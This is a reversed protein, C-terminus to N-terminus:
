MMKLSLLLLSAVFGNSYLDKNSNKCSSTLDPDLLGLVYPVSPVPDPNPDPDAVSCQM